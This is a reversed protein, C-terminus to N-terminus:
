GVVSRFSVFHFYILHILPILTKCRYWFTVGHVKIHLGLYVLKRLFMGGRDESCYHSQLHLRHIGGFHQILQHLRRPSLDRFCTVLFHMLLPFTHFPDLSIKNCRGSINRCPRFSQEGAPKGSIVFRKPLKRHRRSV